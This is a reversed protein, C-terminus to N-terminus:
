GFVRKIIRYQNTKESGLYIQSKVAGGIMTFGLYNASVYTSDNVPNTTGTGGTSSLIWKKTGVERHWIYWAVSDFNLVRQIKFTYAKTYDFYSTDTLILWAVVGGGTMRILAMQGNLFRFVYGNYSTSLDNQLTFYIQSTVDGTKITFEWEGNILEEPYTCRIKSYHAYIKNTLGLTNRIVKCNEGNM